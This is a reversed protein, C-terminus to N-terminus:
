LGEVIKRFAEANAAAQGRHCNNFFTFVTEPSDDLDPRTAHVIRAAYEAVPDPLEVRRVLTRAALVAAADLVVEPQPENAGTTRRLVEVLDPVEPSSLLVMFLFRDLQAEPLTYTGEMEIPNQTALLLFPLPLEHREGGM